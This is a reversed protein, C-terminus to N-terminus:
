DYIFFKIRLKFNIEIIKQIKDKLIKEFKENEIKKTAKAKFFISLQYSNLRFIDKAILIKKYNKKYFM